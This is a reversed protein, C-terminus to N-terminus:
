GDVPALRRKDVQDSTAPVEPKLRRGRVMRLLPKEVFVHAAMGLLILIPPMLALKLYPNAPAFHLFIAHSLYISYSADGGFSAFRWYWKMLPAEFQLAGWFLLAAPVGWVLFRFPTALDFNIGVRPDTFAVLGIVGSAIAVAGLSRRQPAEPRFLLALAVGFLFEIIIPNGLFSLVPNGTLFAAIMAAVYLVAIIWIAKPRWLTIAAATYFLVEYSLTWAPPLFLVGEYGGLFPWLTISSLLRAYNGDWLLLVMPLLCVWYIPYIRALRDRIFPGPRKNKMVHTIIFGSIVFFIDVGSVGTVFYGSSCHALVVLSVAVFRLIQISELRQM